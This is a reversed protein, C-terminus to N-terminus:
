FRDMVRQLMGEFFARGDGPGAPDRGTRTWDPHQWGHFSREPHPMLGFATGEPNTLGAMHDPSGNPNVPYEVDCQDERTTGEDSPYTYRLPSLGKERVTQLTEESSFQLRGEQHASPIQLIDGVDYRSLFPIDNRQVKLYSPRCEFKASENTTLCVETTGTLDTLGPLVGLETLVQFGNCVGVALKGEELFKRLPGLLKSRFRAAFITGARIYDGASFGGPFFMIHFDELDVRRGIGTTGELQKLHVFEASAGLETFVRASEEECNTGEMRLVAVRVDEANM